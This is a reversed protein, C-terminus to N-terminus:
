INSTTLVLEAYNSYCQGKLLYKSYDADILIPDFYWCQDCGMSLVTLFYICNEHLNLFIKIYITLVYCKMMFLVFYFDSFFDREYIQTNIWSFCTANASFFRESLLIWACLFNGKRHSSFFCLKEDVDLQRSWFFLFIYELGTKMWKRTTSTLPESQFSLTTFPVYILIYFIFIRKLKKHEKTIINNTFQFLLFLQLM